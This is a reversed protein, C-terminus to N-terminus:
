CWVGEKLEEYIERAKKYRIGTTTNYELEFFDILVCYDCSDSYQGVDEIPLKHYEKMYNNIKTQLDSEKILAMISMLIDEDSLTLDITIHYDFIEITNDGYLAYKINHKELTKILIDKM